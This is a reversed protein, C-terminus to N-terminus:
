LSKLNESDLINTTLLKKAMESAETTITNPYDMLELLKIANGSTCPGEKIKYDFFFKDNEVQESFHYMSFNKLLYQLEIDHTTVFVLNHHNLYKLVATSSAIREVTNTGRFIEDILFLYKNGNQSLNIFKNLEEIEVFFYSKSESPNEERRISSKVKYPYTSLKEAFCIGLTQSLIVNVGVTKIFTTKGAMNSGTVLLSNKLQDISNKVPEEILPHYINRFCIENRSSMEPLCIQKNSHKISALSIACDLEAIFNYIKKIEVRHKKLINVSRYYAIIDFMLLMNLYEVMVLVMDPIANKDIVLRGLKKNLLKILPSKEKIKKIVEIDIKLRSLKRATIMLDNLGKFGTFHEYIKSSQFKNVIINILIMGLAVFLFIGKFPIMALSIFSMFALLYFIYYHKTYPLTTDFLISPIFHSSTKDLQKLILQIELRDSEEREFYDSLENRQTLKLAEPEYKHLLFYFYEQGVPSVTRDLTEFIKDFELDNWTRDDVYDFDKNDRLFEYYNKILDFNRFRPVPKGWNDRLKEKEKKKSFM